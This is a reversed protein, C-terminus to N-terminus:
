TKINRIKNYIIVIDAMNIRYFIYKDKKKNLQKLLM